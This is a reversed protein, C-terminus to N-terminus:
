WGRKGEECVRAIPMEVDVDELEYTPVGEKVVEKARKTKMTRVRFFFGKAMEKVEAVPVEAGTDMDVFKM